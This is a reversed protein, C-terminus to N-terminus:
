KTTTNKYQNISCDPSPITGIFIYIYYPSLNQMIPLQITNQKYEFPKELGIM